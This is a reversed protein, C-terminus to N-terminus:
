VHDRLVASKEASRRYAEKGADIATSVDSAGHEIASKVNDLQDRTGDKLRRATDGIRRRTEDGAMPAVLLAVGAGVLAGLLFGGMMSGANNESM